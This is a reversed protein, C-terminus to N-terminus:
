AESTQARCLEAYLGGHGLLESHTGREIIEGDKLVLICDANRVTSLRHAIVIITRSGALEDIASQIAAESRTDVASTAEDFIIVPTDRLVARAIAIRQKEGGSLRVGREGIFTDYGQPLASIFGDAYAAHAAARIREPSAGPCGFAINESVTGHFLFVDQSVLSIQSRLSSLTLSSIDKGDLTVRGSTPDYFREILSIVTTKGVGTPGVLAVMQGKQAEFSISKLLPEDPDYSFCVNEFAIDGRSSSLAQADPAETIDSEADLVEFVRSAGAFSMQVDEVIRALVTLPQYFLSLYMMFGVIDSIPMSARMAMVGGVGVVIPTGIATLFEVAPTYIANAFNAHVNVGVYYKCDRAMREHECGEQAFAQIEKMGSLNDQLTGNLEGLVRQNIHFLPAIKKSFLTSALLVFPVPILTLAALGPNIVFLMVAVGIIIILNSVLDPIAHAFLVELQRTDNVMRSMLQGTQKDRYYKLSLSQYKDYVALILDGVINWAAVHSVYMSIFRCVARVLYSGVLVLAYILILTETGTGTELSGTLRRTIEPAVLNLAAACLIGFSALIISGRYKAAYKLLRKIM